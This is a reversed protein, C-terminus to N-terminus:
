GIVRRVRRGLECDSCRGMDRQTVNGFTRVLQGHTDQREICARATLRASLPLCAFRDDLGTLDEVAVISMRAPAGATAGLSSAGGTTTTAPEAAAQEAGAVRPHVRLGAAVGSM